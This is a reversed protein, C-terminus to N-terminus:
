SGYVGVGPTCPSFAQSHASCSWNMARDYNHAFECRRQRLGVEQVLNETTAKILDYEVTDIKNMYHYINIGHALKFATDGNKVGEPFVLMSSWVEESGYYAVMHGLSPGKDRRLLEMANLRVSLCVSFTFKNWM